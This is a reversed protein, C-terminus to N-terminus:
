YFSVEALEDDGVRIWYGDSPTAQLEPMVPSAAFSYLQRNRIEFSEILLDHMESLYDSVFGDRGSKNAKKALIIKDEVSYLSRLLQDEQLNSDM